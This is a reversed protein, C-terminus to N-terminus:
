PYPDGALPLLGLFGDVCEMDRWLHFNLATLRLSFFLHFFSTKPPPGSGWRKDKEIIMRWGIATIIHAMILVQQGIDDPGTERDM